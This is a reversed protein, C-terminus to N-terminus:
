ATGRRTGCVEREFMLIAKYAASCDTFDNLHRIFEHGTTTQMAKLATQQREALWRGFEEVTTHDTSM